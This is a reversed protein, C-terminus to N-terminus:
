HRRVSVAFINVLRVTLWQAVKLGEFMRVKPLIIVSGYFSFGQIDFLLLFGLLSGLLPGLLSALLSALLFGLLHSSGTEATYHLM